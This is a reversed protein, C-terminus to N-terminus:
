RMKACMQKGPELRQSRRQDETTNPVQHKQELEGEYNLLLNHTMAILLAQIAQFVCRNGPPVPGVYDFDIGAKDCIVLVRTGTPVEQRLGKPKIRKLAGMDHDYWGEGTGPAAAHGKYRLQRRQFPLM